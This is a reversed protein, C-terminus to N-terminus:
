NDVVINAPKSSQGQKEIKIVIIGISTPPQKIVIPSQEILTYRDIEGNIHKCQKLSTEFYKRSTLALFLQIKVDIIKLFWGIIDMALFPNVSPFVIWGHFFTLCVYPFLLKLQCVGAIMCKLLMLIHPDNMTLAHCLLFWLYKNSEGPLKIM